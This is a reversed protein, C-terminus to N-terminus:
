KWKPVGEIQTHEIHKPLDLMERIRPDSVSAHVLIGTKDTRAATITGLVIKKGDKHATFPKGILNTLDSMGTAYWMGASEDLVPQRGM